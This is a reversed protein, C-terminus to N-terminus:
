WKRFSYVRGDPTHMLLVDESLVDVAFRETENYIYLKELEEADREGEIGPHKYFDCMVIDGATYDFSAMYLFPPAQEHYIGLMVLHRQFSYYINSPYVESDGLEVKELRWMGDLKGNEFAKDCSVFALLLFIFVFYKAERM